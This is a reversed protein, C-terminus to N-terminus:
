FEKSRRHFKQVLDNIAWRMRQRSKELLAADKPDAEMLDCIKGYIMLARELEDLDDRNVDSM